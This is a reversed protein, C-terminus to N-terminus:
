AYDAASDDDVITQRSSVSSRQSASGSFSIGPWLIDTETGPSSSRRSRM